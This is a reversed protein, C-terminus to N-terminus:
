WFISVFDGHQSLELRVAPCLVSFSFLLPLTFAYFPWDLYAGDDTLAAGGGVKEKNGNICLRPAEKGCM